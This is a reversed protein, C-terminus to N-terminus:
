GATRGGTGAVAARVVDAFAAYRAFGMGRLRSTDLRSDRPRAARRPVVDRSPRIHGDPWGLAAAAARVSAYRTMAEGASAHITGGVGRALLFAIADAVDRTWTPFRVLVDDAVQPSPDRLARVIQGIFGSAELSPGAGILLPIRLILSGPRRAALDEAEAKSRGYVNMPRRPADEAYPPTEGDFVYDSSVFLLRCAPPLAEGFVRVPDVNLRRTEEPHDECFDPDRYAALHVVADFARGSLFRRLADGDRLDVAAAGGGAGRHGLPLVEHDRRLRAATERGLFGTAGTLLIKM